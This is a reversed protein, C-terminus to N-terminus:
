NEDVFEILECYNIKFIGQMERIKVTEGVEIRDEDEPMILRLDKLTGEVTVSKENGLPDDFWFVCGSYNSYLVETIVTEYTDVTRGYFRNISGYIISSIVVMVVSVSFIKVLTVRLDSKTEDRTFVVLLSFAIAFQLFIFWVSVDGGVIFGYICASVISVIFLIISHVIKKM